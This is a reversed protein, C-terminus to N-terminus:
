VNMVCSTQKTLIKKIIELFYKKEKVVVM